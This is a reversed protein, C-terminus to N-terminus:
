YVTNIGLGPGAFLKGERPFRCHGGKRTIILQSIFKKKGKM